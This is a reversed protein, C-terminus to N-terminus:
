QLVEVICEGALRYLVPGYTVAGADLTALSVADSATVALVRVIRGIDVMWM